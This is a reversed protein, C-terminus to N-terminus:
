QYQDFHPSIHLFKYNNNRVNNLIQLFNNYEPHDTNTVDHDMYTGNALTYDDPNIVPTSNWTGWDNLPQITGAFNFKRCLEVFAPLDYFNTKQLVFSLNVNIQKQNDSLWKLNEILVKWKGPRRVQEYVEASGADVSISISSIAPYISSNEIVKKLLLGNTTIRFTQGKKYRYNKILNRCLQSALADGSGGLSIKIPHEFKDLWQLVRELHQSKEEFKPGSDLMRVERRCSPCALNCSDDINISLTYNNKVINNDIIGCRTVACWSFKKQQIDNQLMQATPSNWVDELSEFDFIKGVPIPLWGDCQCLFCDSNHDVSIHTFPMNCFNTIKKDYNKGRSMSRLTYSLAKSLKINQFNTV